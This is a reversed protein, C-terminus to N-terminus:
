VLRHLVHHLSISPVKQSDSKKPDNSSQGLCFIFLFKKQDQRCDGGREQGYPNYFEEPFSTLFLIGSKPTMEMDVLM